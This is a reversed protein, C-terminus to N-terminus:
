MWCFSINIKYFTFPVAPTHHSFTSKTKNQKPVCGQGITSRLHHIQVIAFEDGGFCIDPYAYIDNVLCFFQQKKIDKRM